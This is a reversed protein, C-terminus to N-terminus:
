PNRRKPEALVIQASMLRDARFWKITLKDGARYYRLAFVLDYINQIEIDGVQVLIDDKIIGAKEAPSDETSKMCQVGVINDSQGFQPQCGLHTGYGRDRDSDNDDKFNPNFELVSRDLQQFFNISYKTLGMMANLNIKEIDDTSRHYDEHAGSTFFLAPIKSQLFQAHDSSGISTKKPNFKLGFNGHNSTTNKLISSWQHASSTGFITYAETYRGVMDFNIMGVIKGYQEENRSWSQVFHQAGLLGMEEANFFLVLHSRKLNQQKLKSALDLVVSTGSANDDAGNHIIPVDSGEMSNAGGYGLHDFHAGLVVIEKSLQPDSGPILAFVNSVRGTKKQLQIEISLNKNITFSNPKQSNSIKQQIATLDSNGPNLISKQLEEITTKGALLLFRSGGGERDNFSINENEYQPFSLPNRVVIVAKAGHLVANRLKYHLQRYNTFETKRFESNPNGIGPDGTMIIVLKGSADLNEYDDYQFHDDNISIGFGAFVVPLNELKGSMSFALPEFNLNDTNDNLYNKELKEMKTFITFEQLYSDNIPNLNLEKLYNAIYSTALKNGHTGPLRGELEDSSLYHLHSALKHSFAIQSFVLILLVIKSKM